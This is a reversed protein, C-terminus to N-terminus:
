QSLSSIGVCPAWPRDGQDPCWIWMGCSFVGLVAVLVWHLWIFVYMFLKKLFPVSLQHGSSGM